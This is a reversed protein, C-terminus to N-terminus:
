PNGDYKCTAPITQCEGQWCKSPLPCGGSLECSAGSVCFGTNSGPPSSQCTSFRCLRLDKTTTGCAEGLAVVSGLVCYSGNCLLNQDPNCGPFDTCPTGQDKALDGCTGNTCALGSGCPSAGFANTCAENRQRPRHCVPLDGTGSNGAYCLLGAACAENICYEGEKPGEVCHGCLTSDVDPYCVGTSCQLHGTCEMDVGFKGVIPDCPAVECTNSTRATRLTRTCADLATTAPAGPLQFQETLFQKVRAVCDESSTYQAGFLPGLCAKAQVCSANAFNDIPDGPLPDVNGSTGSTGAGSTGSTGSSGVGSTGGSSTSTGAGPDPVDKISVFCATACLVFVPVFLLSSARSM